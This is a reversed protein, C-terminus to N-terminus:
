EYNRLNEKFYELFKEKSLVPVFAIIDNPKILSSKTNLIQEYEHKLYVDENMIFIIRGQEFEDFKLTEFVKVLRKLKRGDKAIFESTHNCIFDLENVTHTKLSSFAESLADDVEKYFKAEGYYLTKTKYNFFLNDNGFSAVKSSTKLSVKCIMNESDTFTDILIAMLYECLDGQFVTSSVNLSDYEWGLNFLISSIKFDITGNSLSRKADQKAKKLTNCSKRQTTYYFLNVKDLLLEIIAQYLLEPRLIITEWKENKRIKIFNHNSNLEVM